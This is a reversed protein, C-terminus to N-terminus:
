VNLNIRSQWSFKWDWSYVYWVALTGSGSWFQGLLLTISLQPRNQGSEVLLSNCKSPYTICSITAPNNCWLWPDDRPICGARSNIILSINYERSGELIAGKHSQWPLELSELCTQHWHHKGGSCPRFTQLGFQIIVDNDMNPLAQQTEISQQM